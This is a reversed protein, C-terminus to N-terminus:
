PRADGKATLLRQREMPSDEAGALALLATGLLRRAHSVAVPWHVSGCAAVDPNRWDSSARALVDLAARVAEQATRASM